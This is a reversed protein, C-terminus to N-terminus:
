CYWNRSNYCWYVHQCDYFYRNGMGCSSYCINLIISLLNTKSPYKVRPLEIRKMQAELENLTAM